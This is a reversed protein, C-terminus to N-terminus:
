TTHVLAKGAQICTADSIVNRLFLDLTLLNLVVFAWVLTQQSNIHLHPSDFEPGFVHMFALRRRM